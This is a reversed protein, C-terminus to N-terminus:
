ALPFDFSYDFGLNETTGAVLDGVDYAKATLVMYQQYVVDPIYNQIVFWSGRWNVLMDNLINKDNRYRIKFKWIPDFHIQSGEDVRRVTKQEVDANTEWYVSRNPFSGGYGDDTSSILYIQIRQNIAGSNM